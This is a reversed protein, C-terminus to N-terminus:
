DEVPFCDHYIKDLLGLLTASEDPTLAAVVRSENSSAERTMRALAAEGAETIYLHHRRRDTVARRREAWGRGEMEDLLAVVTAKDQGLEASLMKQSMGPNAAMLGLASFGGPKLALDGLRESFSRTLHNHIRRMRFGLLPALVGLSPREDEPVGTDHDRQAIADAM